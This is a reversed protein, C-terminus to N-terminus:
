SNSIFDFILNYDEKLQELEESDETLQSAMEDIRNLADKLDERDDKPYHRLCFEGDSSQPEKCNRFTCLLTENKKQKQTM